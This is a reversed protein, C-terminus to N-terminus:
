HGGGPPPNIIDPGGGPGTPSKVEPGIFAFVWSIDYGVPLTGVRRAVCEGQHLRVSRAGGLVKHSRGAGGVRMEKDTVVVAVPRGSKNCIRLIDGSRLKFKDLPDGKADVTKLSANITVAVEGAAAARPLTLAFSAMAILFLGHFSKSM